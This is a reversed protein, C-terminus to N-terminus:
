ASFAKVLLTAVGLFLTVVLGTLVRIETRIDRFNANTEARAESFSRSAEARFERFNERTEERFDSLVERQHEATVELRVIRSELEDDPERTPDNNM